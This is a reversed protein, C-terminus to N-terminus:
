LCPQRQRHQFRRLEFLHQQKKLSQVLRLHKSSPEEKALKLISNVFETKGNTYAERDDSFERALTSKLDSYTKLSEPHARLYDRFLLRQKIEHHDIQYLHVHHTRGKGGALPLGKVFYFHDKKPNDRWYSYGLKELPEIFQAADSLHAVGILLDIIPKAALGPIATSGIHEIEFNIESLAERIAAIERKALEPWKEDYPILYVKDNSM